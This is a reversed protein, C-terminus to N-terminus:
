RALEALSWLVSHATVCANGNGEDAGKNKILLQIHVPESMLDSDEEELNDSDKSYWIDREM